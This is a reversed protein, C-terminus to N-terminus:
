RAGGECGFARDAALGLLDSTGTIYYATDSYCAHGLYTALLPLRAQVNAGERYWTVLRTVAFRHRLHHPRLARPIGHDLGAKTCAQRFAPHFGGCSWRNGRLSLFFAPSTSRSYARERARVYTRLVDLTTAHVPVLRDKRFKTRHIRLVGRELDVDQRDLRTLEGSRLGTSALLGIMTYLTLGRMPRRPSIDRAAALLRGLESEDLLRVPKIARSRPLVRPDLVATQPDFVAFYDAFNKLTAYRRQRVNPTVRCGLVFTLVLQQTLPGPEKRRTVFRSFTHLTAAQTEFTYGLARRLQVYQNIHHVLRPAFTSM